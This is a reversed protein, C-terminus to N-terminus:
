RRKAAEKDLRRQANRKLIDYRRRENADMPVVEEPEVEKKVKIKKVKAM